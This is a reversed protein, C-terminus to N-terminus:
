DTRLLDAGFGGINSISWIPMTYRVQMIVRTWMILKIVKAWM